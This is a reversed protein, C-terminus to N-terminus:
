RRASPDLGVLPCGVLGVQLWAVTVPTPIWVAIRMRYVEISIFVDM